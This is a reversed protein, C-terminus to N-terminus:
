KGSAPAFTFFAPECSQQLFFRSLYFVAVADDVDFAYRTFVGRQIGFDILSVQRAVGRGFVEGVGDADGLGFIGSERHLKNIHTTSLQLTKVISFFNSVWVVSCGAALRLDGVNFWGARENDLAIQFFYQIFFVSAAKRKAR